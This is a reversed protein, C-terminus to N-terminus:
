QSVPGTRSWGRGGGYSVEQPELEALLGTASRGGDAPVIFRLTSSLIVSATDGPALSGEWALEAPSAVPSPYEGTTDKLACRLIFSDVPSRTVSTVSIRCRVTSDSLTAETSLIRIPCGPEHDVATAVSQGVLGDNLEGTRSGRCGPLATLVPILLVAAIRLIASPM